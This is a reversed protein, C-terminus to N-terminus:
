AVESAGAVAANHAQGSFLNFLELKTVRNSWQVLLKLLGRCWSRVLPKLQGKRCLAPALEARAMFQWGCFHRVERGRFSLPRMARGVFSAPPCRELQLVKPSPGHAVSWQVM